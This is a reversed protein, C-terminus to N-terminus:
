ELPGLAAALEADRGQLEGDLVRDLTRRLREGVEPGQPIGAALLDDGTLSLAVHRLEALWRRANDGGALAVAELPAGRAARAIESPSRAARLPAGTVWRSAAAILDREQGAFQLHGLWRQLLGLEMGSGCAALALLDGRGEPPLLDLAAAVGAPRAAFGDPLVYRNLGAVTEFVAFPDPEHLALRVENGIREGSVAGVGAGAALARTPEDITFGLRAAYRAIRWLRTPDDRFSRAHLVRLVGAELDDLAGDVAEVRGSALEVAIANVTVDRRELDAAIGAPAVVPLAGPEPYVETRTQALDFVLGATTVTATGFAPHRLVTGGLREILGGIDGEVAVDLERPVRGLLVDRVAGGVIWVGSVGEAASLLREGAPLSRLQTVVESAVM